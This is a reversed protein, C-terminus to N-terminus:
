AAREKDRPVQGVILHFYVDGERIAFDVAVSMNASRVAVLKLQVIRSASPYATDDAARDLAFLILRNSVIVLDLAALLACVDM